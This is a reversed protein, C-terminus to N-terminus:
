RVSKFTVLMVWPMIMNNFAVLFRLILAYYTFSIARTGTTWEYCHYAFLFLFILWGGLSSVAASVTMRYIGRSLMKYNGHQQQFKKYRRLLLVIGIYIFVKISEFIGTYFLSII